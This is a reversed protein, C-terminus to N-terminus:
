TLPTGCYGCFKAGPKTLPQGCQKCTRPANATPARPKGCSSCFKATPSMATGCHSCVQQNAPTPSPESPRNTVASIIASATGLLTGALTSGTSWQVDPPPSFAQRTTSRGDDVILEWGAQGQKLCFIAAKNTAHSQWSVVNPRGAADFHLALLDQPGEANLIAPSGQPSDLSWVTWGGGVPAPVVPLSTLRLMVRLGGGIAAQDAGGGQVAAEVARCFTELVEGMDPPVARISVPLALSDPDIPIPATM